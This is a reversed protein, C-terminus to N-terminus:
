HHYPAMIIYEMDSVMITIITLVMSQDQMLLHVLQEPIIFAMELTM